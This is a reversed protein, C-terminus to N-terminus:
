NKSLHVTRNPHRERQTKMAWAAAELFCKRYMDSRAEDSVVLDKCKQKVKDCNWWWRQMLEMVTDVNLPEQSTLEKVNLEDLPLKVARLELTEEARIRSRDTTIRRDILMGVIAANPPPSNSSLTHPADPSLYVVEDIGKAKQQDIFEHMNVNCQFDVKEKRNSINTSHAQNDLDNVRAYVATVDGESGLLSVHCEYKAGSVESARWELFNSLQRSVANIREKRPRKQKPFGYWADCILIPPSQSCALSVSTETRSSTQVSNEESQKLEEGLGLNTSEKDKDGEGHDDGHIRLSELSAELADAGMKM